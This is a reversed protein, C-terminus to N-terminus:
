KQLDKNHYLYYPHYSQNIEGKCDTFFCFQLWTNSPRTNEHYCYCQFELYDEVWKRVHYTCFHHCHKKSCSTSNAAVCSNYKGDECLHLKMHHNILSGIEWVCLYVKLSNYEKLIVDIVPQDLIRQVSDVRVLVRGSIGRIADYHSLVDLTTGDLFTTRMVKAERDMRLRCCFLRMMVIQAFCVKLM